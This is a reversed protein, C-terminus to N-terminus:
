FKVLKLIENQIFFPGIVLHIFNDLFAPAKKEYKKHGYLQFIWGVVFLVVLTWTGFQTGIIYCALTSIIMTIGLMAHLRMYLVNGLVFLVTAVTLPMGFMFQDVLVLKELLGLLAVVILPIGIFHTYVNAKSLHYKHYEKFFREATFDSKKKKTM